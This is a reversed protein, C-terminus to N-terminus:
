PRGMHLFPFNQLLLRLCMESWRSSGGGLVTRQVLLFWDEHCLWPSSYYTNGGGKILQVLHVNESVSLWDEASPWGEPPPGGTSDQPLGWAEGSPRDLPPLALGEFPPTIMVPNAHSPWLLPNEPNEHTSVTFNCYGHERANTRLCRLRVVVRCRRNSCTTSSNMIQAELFGEFPPTIMVPNAHSPWLVLPTRTLQSPSTAIGTNGRTQAYVDSAFLLAVAAILALPRNM